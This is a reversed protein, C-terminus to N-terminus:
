KKNKVGYKELLVREAYATPYGEEEFDKIDILKSWNDAIELCIAQISELSDDMLTILSQSHLLGFMYFVRTNRFSIELEKLSFRKADQVSWCRKLKEGVKEQCNMFLEEKLPHRLTFFPLYAYSKTTKPSEAGNLIIKTAEKKCLEEVEDLSDTDTILLDLGELYGFTYFMWPLVMEDKNVIANMLM